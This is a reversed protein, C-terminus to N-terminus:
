TYKLFSLTESAAKSVIFFWVSIQPTDPRTATAFYNAQLKILMAPEINQIFSESAKTYDLTALSCTVLLPQWYTILCERM